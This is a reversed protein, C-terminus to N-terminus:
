GAARHTEERDWAAQRRLVEQRMWLMLAWVLAFVVGVVGLSPSIVWAAVTAVQLAIALPLGWPRSFFVIAVVYGVVLTVVWAVRLPTLGGEANAMVVLSLPVIIAQMSLAASAPGRFAKRPDVRRASLPEPTDPSGPTGPTDPTDPTGPTGPASTSM